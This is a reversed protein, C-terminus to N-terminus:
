KSNMIQCFVTYFDLFNRKGYKKEFNYGLSLYDNRYDVFGKEEMTEILAKFDNQEMKSFVFSDKLNNFLNKQKIHGKEFITSLIQHFYIDKPKEPIKINEIYGEKTLSIEALSILIDAYPFREIDYFIITEQNLDM